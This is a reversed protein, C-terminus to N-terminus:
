YLDEKKSEERKDYSCHASYQEDLEHVQEALFSTLDVREDSVGAHGSNRICCSNRLIDTAFEVLVVVQEHMCHGRIYGADYSRSYRCTDQEAEESLRACFGKIMLMKCLSAHERIAARM